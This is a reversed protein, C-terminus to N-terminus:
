RRLLGAFSDGCNFREARVLCQFFVLSFREDVFAVRSLSGGNTHAFRRRLQIYRDYATREVNGLACFWRCAILPDLQLCGKDVRSAIIHTYGPTDLYAPVREPSRDVYRSRRRKKRYWCFTAWEGGNYLMAHRWLRNDFPNSEM